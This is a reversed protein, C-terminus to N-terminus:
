ASAPTAQLRRWFFYSLGWLVGTAAAWGWGEPLGGMEKSLEVQRECWRPWGKAPSQEYQDISCDIGAQRLRDSLALIRDKHEPSDHSYSIFVRAASM